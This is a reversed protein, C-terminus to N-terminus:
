KKLGKTTLKYKKFFDNKYTSNKAHKNDKKLKIYEDRIKKSKLLKKFKLLNKHKASNRRIIHLNIKKSKIMSWTDNLHICKTYNKDKMKKFESLTIKPHEDTVYMMDLLPKALINDITTSGIHVFNKPKIKQSKFSNKYKNFLKTFKKKNIKKIISGITKNNKTFNKNNTYCRM